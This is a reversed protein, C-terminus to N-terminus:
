PMTGSGLLKWGIAWNAHWLLQRSAGYCAMKPLESEPMLSYSFGSMISEFGKVFGHHERYRGTYLWQLFLEFAPKSLYASHVKATNANELKVAFYGSAKRLLGRSVSWRDVDTELGTLMVTDNNHLSSYTLKPARLCLDLIMLPEGMWFFADTNVTTTTTPTTMAQEPYM